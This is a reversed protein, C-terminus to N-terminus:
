LQSDISNVFEFFEDCIQSQHFRELKLHSNEAFKGRIQEDQMLLALKIKFTDFDKVTVLFGNEGDEIMESPGAVCDFSVVPLRASLAEGVVNPFGESSSTFAFISAKKYYVEVNSVPGLFEVKRDAKLSKVKDNLEKLLDMNKANGGIVQLKWDPADISLFLDILESIHKTPILRGVTLVIKERQEFKGPDIFRIPNGIIRINKSWHNKSAIDAAIATQAIFGAARPYLKNRLFNHLRGLDKNPQSRDSIFIPVNLGTLSLLVLNNWLEGFSLISTPQIEEVKKRIFLLTKVTHWTRLKNNFVFAPKHVQVTSPLPYLVKRERGILILDLQVGERSAFDNILISMVREM